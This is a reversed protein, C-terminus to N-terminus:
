GFHFNELADFGPKAYFYLGVAIVGFLMVAAIIFSFIFDTIKNSKMNAGKSYILKLIDKLYLTFMISAVGFLAVVVILVKLVDVICFALWILLTKM